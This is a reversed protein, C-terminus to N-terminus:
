FFNKFHKQYIYFNNDELPQILITNKNAVFSIIKCIANCKAEKFTM